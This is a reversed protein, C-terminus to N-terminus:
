DVRLLLCGSWSHLEFQLQNGGIKGRTGDQPRLLVASKAGHQRELADNATGVTTDGLASAGLTLTALRRFLDRCDIPQHM